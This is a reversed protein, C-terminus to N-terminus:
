LCFCTFLRVRESKRNTPLEDMIIKWSFRQITYVLVLVVAQMKPQSFPEFLKDSFEDPIGKGNDSITIVAGNTKAIKPSDKAGRM